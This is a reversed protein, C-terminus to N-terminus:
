GDIHKLIVNKLESLREKGRLFVDNIKEVFGDAMDLDIYINDRDRILSVMSVGSVLEVTIGKRSLSFVGSHKFGAERAIRLVRHAAGISICSLHIIPGSVIIWYRYVPKQGIIYLLDSSTIGYHSKFVVSSNRRRWPYESDTITIRGSCSSKPFVGDIRFFLLLLDLIDPDLYGIYLDELMRRYFRDRNKLWLGRDVIGMAM